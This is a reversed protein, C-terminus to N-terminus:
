AGQKRRSLMWAVLFLVAPPIILVWVLLFAPHWFGKILLFAIERLFMTVIAVTAGIAEWRWAAALGLIAVGWLSLLFWDVAPVPEAAYSDPYLIELVAMTFVLTSWLRATWRIVSVLRPVTKTESM